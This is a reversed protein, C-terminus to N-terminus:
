RLFCRPSASYCESQRKGQANRHHEPPLVMGELLHATEIIVFNGPSTM